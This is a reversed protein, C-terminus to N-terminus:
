VFNNYEKYQKENMGIVDIQKVNNTIFFRTKHDFYILKKENPIWLIIEM